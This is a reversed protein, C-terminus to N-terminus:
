AHRVVKRPHTMDFPGVSKAPLRDTRTDPTLSRPHDGATRSGRRARECASRRPGPAGEALILEVPGYREALLTALLEERTERTM